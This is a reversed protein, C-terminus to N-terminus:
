AAEGETTATTTLDLREQVTTPCWDIYRADRLLRVFAEGTLIVYGDGASSKGRRKAWVAGYDAGDNSRETEAETVWGALDLTKCNKAEIIIGPIGAIDGRDKTGGLTRREAYPVGNTKLYEVIATEFSTGKRKAASV